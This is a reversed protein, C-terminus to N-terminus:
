QEKAAQERLRQAARYERRRLMEVYEWRWDPAYTFHSQRIRTHSHDFRAYELRTEQNIM